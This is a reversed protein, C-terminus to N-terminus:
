VDEQVNTMDGPDKRLGRSSRRRAQRLKSSKLEDWIRLAAAERRKEGHTDLYRLLADPDATVAALVSEYSEHLRDIHDREFLDASYTWTASLGEPRDMIWLTLDLRATDSASELLRLSLGPLSPLMA